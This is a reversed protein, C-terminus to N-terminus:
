LALYLAIFTFILVHLFPSTPSCLVSGILFTCRLAPRHGRSWCNIAKTYPLHQAWGTPVTHPPAPHKLHDQSDLGQQICLLSWGASGTSCDELQGWYYWCSHAPSGGTPHRPSPGEMASDERWVSGHRPAWMVPSRDGLFCELAWQTQLSGQLWIQQSFEQCHPSDCNVGRGAAQHQPAKIGPTVPPVAVQM